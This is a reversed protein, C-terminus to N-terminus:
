FNIIIDEPVEDVKQIASKQYDKKSYIANLLKNIQGQSLIM